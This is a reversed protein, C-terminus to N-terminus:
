EVLWFAVYIQENDDVVERFAPRPRCVLQESVAMGASGVRTAELRTDNASFVRIRRRARLKGATWPIALAQDFEPVVYTKRVWDNASAVM